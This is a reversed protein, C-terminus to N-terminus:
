FRKVAIASSLEAKGQWQEFAGNGTMAMLSIKIRRVEIPDATIVDNSDYYLFMQGNNGTLGIGSSPIYYPMLVAPNGDISRYLKNSFTDLQFNIIQNDQNKFTIEFPQIDTVSRSFRLGKAQGDGEIMADLADSALMDMNLKNPIFIASQILYSM